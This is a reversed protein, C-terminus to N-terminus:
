AVLSDLQEAPTFGQQGKEGAMHKTKRVHMLAVGGLTDQVAECAKCELM